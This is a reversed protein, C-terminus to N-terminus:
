SFCMAYKEKLNQKESNVLGCFFGDWFPIAKSDTPRIILYSCEPNNHSHIKFVCFKYVRYGLYLIAVKPESRELSM